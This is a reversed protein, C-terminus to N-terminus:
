AFDCPGTVVDTRVGNRWKIVERLYLPADVHRNHFRVKIVETAWAPNDDEPEVLVVKERTIGTPRYTRGDSGILRVHRSHRHIEIFTVGRTKLGDFVEIETGRTITLRLRGCRFKGTAPTKTVTHLHQVRPVSEASSQDNGPAVALAAPATAFLVVATAIAATRTRTRSSM